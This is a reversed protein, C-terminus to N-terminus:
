QAERSCIALGIPHFVRNHDSSGVILIPNGIYTLKYTGDAQIIVKFQSSFEILRRTTLYLRFRDGAEECESLDIDDGDHFYMQFRVIFPEDPLEPGPLPEHDFGWKAM